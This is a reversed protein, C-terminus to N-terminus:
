GVIKNVIIWNLKFWGPVLTAIGGIILASFSILLFGGVWTSIKGDDFLEGKTVKVVFVGLWYPVFVVASVELVKLLGFLLYKM